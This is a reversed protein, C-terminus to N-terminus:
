PRPADQLLKGANLRGTGNEAPTGPNWADASTQLLRKVDVPTCHPALSLLMGCAASVFAAAFSTGHLPGCYAEVPLAAPADDPVPLTTLIGVGPACLSVHPGSQTFSAPQDNRDSAGVVVLGSIRPALLAPYVDPDGRLKDNGAAAVISIGARECEGLILTETLDEAQGALSLNLVRAGSDRVRRLAQYYKFPDFVPSFVKYVHVPVRAAGAIGLNNDRLAALVGIVETGHGLDDRDDYGFTEYISPAPLDKHKRDFGSDVVAIPFAAEDVLRWAQTFGCKELGWQAGFLPDNPQYQAYQVGVPFRAAPLHSYSIREDSRLIALAEDAQQLDEFTM